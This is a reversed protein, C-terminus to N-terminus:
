GNMIDQYAKAAEQPSMDSSIKVTSKQTVDVEQRDTWGMNKLAFIPGAAQGDILRKEYAWEVLLKAKKVSDSFGDYKAYEDISQRSSFGMFLALGTWTIPECGELCHTYYEQVKADFQEPTDYMRPRGGKNKETM